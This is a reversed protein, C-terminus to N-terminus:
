SRLLPTIHTIAYDILCRVHETMPKGAYIRQSGIASHDECDGANIAIVLINDHLQHQWGIEHDREGIHRYPCFLVDRGFKQREFRSVRILLPFFGGNLGAPEDM